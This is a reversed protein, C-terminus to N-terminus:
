QMETVSPVLDGFAPLVVDADEREAENPRPGERPENRVRFTRMGLRRPGAFDKRPDNAVYVARGPATGLLLLAVEFGVPSPKRYQRGLEDTLVAVDLQPTLGLAALKSRQVSAMGDSVLGLRVNRRRLAALVPPVDEHLAIRPQHGRYIAVLAPVLGPTELHLEAAIRDFISGRGVQDHIEVMRDRLAGSDLGYREALFSAVAAFGSRVFEFEPYLTDDLDFLVADIM